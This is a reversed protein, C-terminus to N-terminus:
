IISVLAMTLQGAQPALRVLGAALGAAAVLRALALFNTVMLQLMIPWRPTALVRQVIALIMIGLVLM